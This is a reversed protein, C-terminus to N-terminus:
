GEAQKAVWADKIAQTWIGSNAIQQVETHEKALDEASIDPHIVHRHFKVLYNLVM